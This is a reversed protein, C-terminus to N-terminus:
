FCFHHRTVLTNHIYSTKNKSFKMAHYTFV